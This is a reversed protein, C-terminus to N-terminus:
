RLSLGTKSGLSKAGLEDARVRFDLAVGLGLNFFDFNRLGM